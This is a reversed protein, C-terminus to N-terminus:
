PDIWLTAATGEAVHDEYTKIKADILSRAADLDAQQEEIRDRHLRLLSLREVENGPGARVLEAFRAIVNLPMHTSRFLRCTTLWAIDAGTYVRRGAADRRPMTALLGRREYLRLTHIGLSTRQAVESISLCDETVGALRPRM